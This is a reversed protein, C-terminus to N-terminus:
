PTGGFPVTRIAANFPPKSVWEHGCHGCFPTMTHLAREWTDRARELCVWCITTVTNCCRTIARTDAVHDCAQCPVAQHENIGIILARGNALSDFIPNMSM